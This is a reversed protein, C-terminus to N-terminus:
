FDAVPMDFMYRPDNPHADRMKGQWQAETTCASLLIAALCALIVGLRKM